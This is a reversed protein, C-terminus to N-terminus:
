IVFFYQGKLGWEKRNHNRSSTLTHMYWMLLLHKSLSCVSYPSHPFLWLIGFLVLTKWSLSINHTTMLLHLKSWGLHNKYSGCQPCISRLSICSCVHVLLIWCAWLLNSFSCLQVEWGHVLLKCLCLSMFFIVLYFWGLSKFTHYLIVM